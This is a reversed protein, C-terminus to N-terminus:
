EAVTRADAARKLLWGGAVFAIADSLTTLLRFMLAAGVAQGAGVMPTLGAVLIAERVGLGAPAGPTLSGAVWAVAFLGVVAPLKAAVSALPVQALMLLPASSLVFGVVSLLAYAATWRAMRRTWVRRIPEVFRARLPELWRPRSALVLALVVVLAAAVPLEWRLAPAHGHSRLTQLAFQALPLGLLVAVAVNVATEVVMSAAVLTASYGLRSALVVRGALHGVNGPLYKAFQATMYIGTSSTLSPRLGLGTLLLSWGGAFLAFSLLYPLLALAFAALTPGPELHIGSQRWVAIARAAFYGLCVLSIAVGAARALTSRSM